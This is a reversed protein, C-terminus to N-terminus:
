AEPLRCVAFRTGAIQFCPLTRSLENLYGAVGSCEPHDSTYGYDDWVIVGGPRILKLAQQTDNRVFEFTHNADVFILDMQGHMPTFKFYRSDGYHQHIRSAVDTMRFADGVSFEPYGEPRYSPDLDLTDIEVDAASNLAMVLTASGIYTGFEFIRRPRLYNCIVGLMALERIPSVMFDEHALESAPLLGTVEHIGPFIADMSRVELLLPVDARPPPMLKRMKERQRTRNLEVVGYPLCAKVVQVISQKTLHRM